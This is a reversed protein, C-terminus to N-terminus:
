PTVSSRAAPMPTLPEVPRVNKRSAYRRNLFRRAPQEVVYYSVIGTGTALLLLGFRSTDPQGHSLNYFPQQWIYISYSWVGILTFLRSELVVLLSRAAIPLLVVAGALVFPMLTQTVYAPIRHYALAVALIMLTISAYPGFRGARDTIKDRWLYTLVPVTIFHLMPDTLWYVAYYDGGMILSRYLGDCIAAITMVVLLMSAKRIDRITMIGVILLVLYSHEEICLSWVHGIQEGGIGWLRAYGFTFTLVSLAASLTLPEGWFATLRSLALTVVVFVLLVPWVRSFRRLLFPGVPFRQEFLIEGMLRGSLAFFFSVGLAGWRASPLATFHGALVLAISLGRWGDLYLKRQQEISM